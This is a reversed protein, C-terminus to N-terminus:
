RWTGARGLHVQERVYDLLAMLMARDRETMHRVWENSNAGVDFILPGVVFKLAYPPTAQLQLLPHMQYEPSDDFSVRRRMSDPIAPPAEGEEDPGFTGVGIPDYEDTNPM